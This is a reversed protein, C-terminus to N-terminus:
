GGSPSGAPKAPSAKSKSRSNKAARVLPRNHLRNNAPKAVGSHNRDFLVETHLNPKKSLRKENRNIFELRQEPTKDKCGLCHYYVTVEIFGSMGGILRGGSTEFHWQTGCHPCERVQYSM